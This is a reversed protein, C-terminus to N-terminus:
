EIADNAYLNTRCEFEMEKEAKPENLFEYFM